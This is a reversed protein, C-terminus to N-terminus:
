LVLVATMQILPVLSFRIPIALGGQPLQGHCLAFQGLHSHNVNICSAVAPPWIVAEYSVLLQHMPLYLGSCVVYITLM